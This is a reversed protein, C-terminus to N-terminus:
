KPKVQSTLWDYARGEVKDFVDLQRLLAARRGKQRTSMIKAMYGEKTEAFFRKILISAEDIASRRAM